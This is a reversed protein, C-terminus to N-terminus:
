ASQYPLLRLPPLRRRRLRAARPELSCRPLRRRSGWELEAGPQFDTSNYGQVNGLAAALAKPDVFSTKQLSKELDDMMLQLARADYVKPAGVHIGNDQAQVVLPVVSAVFSLFLMARLRVRPAISASM